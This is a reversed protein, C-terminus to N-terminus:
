NVEGVKLVVNQFKQKTLIRLKQKGGGSDKLVDAM